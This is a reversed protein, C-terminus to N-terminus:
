LMAGSHVGFAAIGFALSILVEALSEIRRSSTRVQEILRQTEKVMLSM